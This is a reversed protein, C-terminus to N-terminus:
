SEQSCQKALVHMARRVRALSSLTIPSFVRGGYEHVDHQRHIYAYYSFSKGNKSIGLQIGDVKSKM